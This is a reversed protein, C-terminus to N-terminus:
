IDLQKLEKKFIFKLFQIYFIPIFKELNKTENLKILIKTVFDIDIIQMKQFLSKGFLSRKKNYFLDSSM